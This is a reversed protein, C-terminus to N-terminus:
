LPSPPTTITTTANMGITRTALTTYLVVRHHDLDSSPGKKGMKRENKKQNRRTTVFTNNSSFV